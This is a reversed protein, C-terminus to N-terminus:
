CCAPVPFVQLLRLRGVGDDGHQPCSVQPGRAPGAVPLDRLDGVGRGERVQGNRGRDSPCVSLNTLM